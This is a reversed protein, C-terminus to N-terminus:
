GVHADGGAGVSVVFGPQALLSKPSILLLDRRAVGDLCSAARRPLNGPVDRVEDPLLEVLGDVDTCAVGFEIEEEQVILALDNDAQGRMDVDWFRGLDVLAVFKGRLRTIGLLHAPAGPVHVVNRLPIVEQVSTLPLAFKENIYTFAVYPLRQGTEQTSKVGVADVAALEKARARLIERELASLRSHPHGRSEM